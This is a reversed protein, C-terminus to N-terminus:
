LVLTRKIHNRNYCGYAIISDYAGVVFQQPMNGFIHTMKLGNRHAMFNNHSSLSEFGHALRKRSPLINNKRSLIDFDITTLHYITQLLSKLGLGILFYKDYTARLNIGLGYRKRMAEVNRFHVTVILAIGEKRIIVSVKKGLNGPLVERTTNAERM